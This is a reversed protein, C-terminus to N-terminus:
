ASRQARARAGLARDIEDRSGQGTLANLLADLPLKHELPHRLPLHGQVRYQNRRGVRTRELYGENVLDTVIRQAARETIGVKTALDRLRIGPDRAICLAVHAHNTLFTWTALTM